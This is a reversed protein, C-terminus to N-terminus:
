LGEYDWVYWNSRNQIKRIYKLEGSPPTKEYLNLFLAKGSSSGRFTHRYFELHIGNLRRENDLRLVNCFVAEAGTDNFLEMALDTIAIGADVGGGAGWDVRVGDDELRVRVPLPSESKKPWAVKSFEMLRQELGKTRDLTILLHQDTHDPVHCGSMTSVFFAYLVLNRKSM